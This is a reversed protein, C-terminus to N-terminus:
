VFVAELLDGIGGAPEIYRDAGVRCLFDKLLADLGHIKCFGAGKAGPLRNLAVLPREPEGRSKEHNPQKDAFAPPQAIAGEFTQCSCGKNDAGAGQGGM